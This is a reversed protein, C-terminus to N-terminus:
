LDAGEIVTGFRGWRDGSWRMLQVQRLPHYNTPSTNVRIGPLLTAVEVNKLAAAQHIINERTFNGNCQELVRRLVITVTYGYVNLVDDANGNPFYKRMFEKFATLGPDGAWAPDLPDKLYASSIIGEARETGAPRIVSVSAAGNAIFHMPKWGIDYVKRIAQAVFKATSGSILVDAGSGQLSIIQSEITPDTVEHSIAHVSADFRPGLVDRVGAV